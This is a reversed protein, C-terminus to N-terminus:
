WWNRGNKGHVFLWYIFNYDEALFFPEYQAPVPVVLLRAARPPPKHLSAAHLARQGSATSPDRTNEPRWCTAPGGQWSELAGSLPRSQAPM